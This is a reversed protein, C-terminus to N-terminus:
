GGEASSGHRVVERELKLEGESTRGQWKVNVTVKRVDFSSEEAAAGNRCVDASVTYAVDGDRLDDDAGQWPYSGEPLGRGNIDAQAAALQARALYVAKVRCGDAARLEASRGYLLFCSSLALLALGAALVELLMFGRERAVPIM